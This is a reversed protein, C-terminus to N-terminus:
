RPVLIHYRMRAFGDLATPQDFINDDCGLGVHVDDHLFRSRLPSECVRPETPRVTMMAVSILQPRLPTPSQLWSSSVPSCKSSALALRQGFQDHKVDKKLAAWRPSLQCTAPKAEITRAGAAPTACLLFLLGIAPAFWRRIASANTIM